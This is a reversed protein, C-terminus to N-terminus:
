QDRDIDFFQLASTTLTPAAVVSNDFLAMLYYKITSRLGYSIKITM